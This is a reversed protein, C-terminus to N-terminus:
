ISIIESKILQGCFLQLSELLEEAFSFITEAASMVLNIAQPFISLLDKVCITQCVTVIFVEQNELYHNIGLLLIYVTPGYTVCTLLLSFIFADFILGFIRLFNTLYM